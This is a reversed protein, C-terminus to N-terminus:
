ERLKFFFIKDKQFFYSHSNKGKNNNKLIIFIGAYSFASKPLESSSFHTRRAWPLTIFLDTGFLNTRKAYLCSPHHCVYSGNPNLLNLVLQVTKKGTKLKKFFNNM